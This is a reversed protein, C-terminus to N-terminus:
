HGHITHTAPLVMMKDHKAALRTKHINCAAGDRTWHGLLASVQPGSYSAVGRADGSILYVSM